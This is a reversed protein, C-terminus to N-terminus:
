RQTGARLQESKWITLDDSGSRADCWLLISPCERGVGHVSDSCQVILCGGVALESSVPRHRRDSRLDRAFLLENFHIRLLLQDDTGNAYKGAPFTFISVYLKLRWLLYQKRWKHLQQPLIDGRMASVVLPRPVIVLLSWYTVGPHYILCRSAPMLLLEADLM